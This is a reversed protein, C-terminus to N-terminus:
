DVDDMHTRELIERVVPISPPLDPFDAYIDTTLPKLAPLDAYIDEDIQDKLKMTTYDFVRYPKKPTYPYKFQNVSVLPPMDAYEDEVEASLSTGTPTRNM